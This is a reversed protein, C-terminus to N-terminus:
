QAKGMWVAVLADALTALENSEEKTLNTKEGKGFLTVLFLPMSDSHFYYVVRVGGSKGQGSRGWRLKRFGGTGRVLVGAKPNSALHNIIESNEENSLLRKADRVYSPTEVVTLM